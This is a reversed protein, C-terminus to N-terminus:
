RLETNLPVYSAPGPLQSPADDETRIVGADKLDRVTLDLLHPSQVLLAQLLLGDLLLLRHVGLGDVVGGPHDGDEDGHVELRVLGQCSVVTVHDANLSSHVTDM